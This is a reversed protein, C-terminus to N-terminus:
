MSRFSSLDSGSTVASPGPPQHISPNLLILSANIANTSSLMAIAIEKSSPLIVPQNFTISKGARGLTEQWHQGKIRIKSKTIRQGKTVKFCLKWHFLFACIAPVSCHWCVSQRSDAIMGQLSEQGVWFGSDFLGLLPVPWSNSSFIRRGEILCQALLRGAM